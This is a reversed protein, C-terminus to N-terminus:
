PSPHLASDWTIQADYHTHTDIIGPMLALGDADIERKGGGVDAGIAAIRGDAVALSARRGPAKSGDFLLANKIVLDHM